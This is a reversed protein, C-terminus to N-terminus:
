KEKEEMGPRMSFGELKDQVDILPEAVAPDIFDIMQMESVEARQGQPLIEGIKDYTEALITSTDGMLRFGLEPTMKEESALRRALEQASAYLKENMEQLADDFAREAEGSLKLKAKWQARAVDVRTAWLEQAEDIRAALDDPTRRKKPAKADAVANTAAPADASVETRPANTVAIASRRAEARSPRHRRPHRATEPIKAMRAFTDLGDPKQEAAAKKEGKDLEKLARLDARAGWSGVIFGALCALPLLFFWKNM